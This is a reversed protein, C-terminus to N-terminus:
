PARANVRVRGKLGGYLGVRVTAPLHRREERRPNPTKRDPQQEEAQGHHRGLGNDLGTDVAIPSRVQPPQALGRGGGGAAAAAALAAAYLDLVLREQREPGPVVHGKHQSGEAEDDRGSTRKPYISKKIHVWWQATAGGEPYEGMM